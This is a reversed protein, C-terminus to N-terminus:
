DKGRSFMIHLIRQKLDLIKIKEYIKQWMQYPLAKLSNLTSKNFYINFIGWLEKWAM